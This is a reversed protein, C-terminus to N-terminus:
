VEVACIRVKPFELIWWLVPVVEVLRGLCGCLLAWFPVVTVQLAGDNVRGQVLV